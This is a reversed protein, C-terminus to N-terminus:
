IGGGDNYAVLSPISVCTCVQNWGLILIYMHIYMTVPHQIYMYTHICSTIHKCTCTHVHVHIYAQNTHSRTHKYVSYCSWGVGGERAVEGERRGGSGRM